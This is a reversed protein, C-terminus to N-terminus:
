NVHQNKILSSVPTGPSFSQPYPILLLGLESVTGSSTILNLVANTFPSHKVMIGVWM